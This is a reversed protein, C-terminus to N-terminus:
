AEVHRGGGDCRTLMKLRIKLSARLLEVDYDDVSAFICFSVFFVLCCPRRTAYQFAMMSRGHRKGRRWRAARADCRDRSTESISKRRRKSRLPSFFRRYPSRSGLSPTPKKETKHRRNMTSPIRSASYQNLGAPATPTCYKTQGYFRHCDM